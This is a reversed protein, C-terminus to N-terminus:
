TFGCNCGCVKRAHPLDPLRETSLWHQLHGFFFTWAITPSIVGTRRPVIRVVARSTKDSMTSGAKAWCCCCARMVPKPRILQACQSDWDNLSPSAQIRPKQLPSLWAFARVTPCCVLPSPITTSTRFTQAVRGDIVKTLAVNVTYESIALVWTRCLTRGGTM